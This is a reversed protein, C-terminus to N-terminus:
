FLINITLIKRTKIFLTSKPGEGFTWTMVYPIVNQAVLCKLLGTRTHLSEPKDICRNQVPSNSFMILLRSHKYTEEEEERNCRGVFNESSFRREMEGTVDWGKKLGNKVGGLKLTILGSRGSLLMWDVGEYGGLQSFRRIYIKVRLSPCWLDFSIRIFLKNEAMAVECVCM